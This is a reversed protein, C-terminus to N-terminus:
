RRDNKKITGRWTLSLGYKWNETDLYENIDGSESYILATTEIDKDRNNIFTKGINGPMLPSVFHLPAIFAEL